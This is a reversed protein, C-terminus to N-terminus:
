TMMERRPAPLLQQPATGVDIRTSRGADSHICQTYVSHTGERAGTDTDVGASTGVRLAIGANRTVLVPARRQSHLGRRPCPPPLSFKKAQKHPVVRPLM